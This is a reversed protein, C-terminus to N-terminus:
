FLFLFYFISEALIGGGGGGLENITSSKHTFICHVFHGMVLAYIGIYGCPGFHFLLIILWFCCCTIIIIIIIITIIVIVFNDICYLHDVVSGLSWQQKLDM